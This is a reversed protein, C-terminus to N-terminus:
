VHGCYTVAKERLEITVSGKSRRWPPRRRRMFLDVGHETSDRRANRALKRGARFMRFAERDSINSPATDLPLGAGTASVLIMHRAEVNASSHGDLTHLRTKNNYLEARLNMSYAAIRMGAERAEAEMKAWEHQDESQRQQKQQQEM